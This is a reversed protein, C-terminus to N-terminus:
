ERTITAAVFDSGDLDYLPVTKHIPFDEDDLEEIEAILNQLEAILDQKSGSIAPVSGRTFKLEYIPM